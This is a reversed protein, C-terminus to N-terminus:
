EPNILLDDLSKGSELAEVVWRPQRGRGTWTMDQDDPNAYKPSVTKRRQKMAGTLESLTFGKERAVAELAAVAEARQRDKFTSVAHDVDKQLQKLEKLTMTRLDIDM